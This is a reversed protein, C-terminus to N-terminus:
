ETVETVPILVISEVKQLPKLRDEWLFAKVTYDKGNLEIDVYDTLEEQRDLAIPYKIIRAVQGADYLAIWVEGSFADICSMNTIDLKIRDGETDSQYMVIDILSESVTVYIERAIGDCQATIIAEGQSRATIVGTEDVSAVTEDDVSWSVTKEVAYDPYVQATLTVTEGVKVERRPLAIVINEAQAENEELYESEKTLVPKDLSLDAGYAEGVKIVVNNSSFDAESIDFTKVTKDTKYEKVRIEGSGMKINTNFYVGLDLVPPLDTADNNPVLADMSLKVTQSDKGNTSSSSNLYNYHIKANTLCENNDGINIRDWEEESGSYYVDTLSECGYFAVDGISTVGNRIVVNKISGNNHWPSEQFHYDYMDGTGSITLTGSDDM